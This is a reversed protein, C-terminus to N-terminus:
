AITDELIQKTKQFEIRPQYILKASDTLVDKGLRLTALLSDGGGLALWLIDRPFNQGLRSSECAQTFRPFLTRSYEYVADDTKIERFMEDLQNKEITNNEPAIEPADAQRMMEKVAERQSHSEKNELEQLIETRENKSSGIIAENEAKKLDNQRKELESPSLNDGGENPKKQENNDHVM